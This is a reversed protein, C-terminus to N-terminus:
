LNRDFKIYSSFDITRLNEQLTLSAAYCCTRAIWEMCIGSGLWMLDLLKELKLTHGRTLVHMTILYGMM